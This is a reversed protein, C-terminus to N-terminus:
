IQYYFNGTIIDSTTWTFPATSSLASTILGTGSVTPYGIALTTGSATITSFMGVWTSGTADFLRLITGPASTVSYSASSAIPLTFSVAGAISSTGGFTFNLFVDVIDNTIKYRAALTGDGVTLNTFTPTYALMRTEFIPTHILNANTFTPVTWTYGAGASLTAAFRGVCVYDDTATPTSANGFALYKAATTTSSFDSYVRGNPIRAFGIDMIDTAPTTNWGLYIFLDSEIAPLNTGLAMWNTGANKTVSLAATCRRYTGNIWVSVPDTASPDGGAKTKLAVTLNNSNVTVSFKGNIMYGDPLLNKSGLYLKQSLPTGAPDDVIDELDSGLPATNETLATTKADAM